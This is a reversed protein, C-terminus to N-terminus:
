GIMLVEGKKLADIHEKSLPDKNDFSKEKRKASTWTTIDLNDGGIPTRNNSTQAMWATIGGYEVKYKKLAKDFGFPDPKKASLDPIPLDVKEDADAIIEDLKSPGVLKIDYKRAYALIHNDFAHPSWKKKDKAPGLAVKRSEELLGYDRSARAFDMYLAMILGLNRIETFLSERELQALMSLFLRGILQFVADVTAGDGIRTVSFAVDTKLFFALAECVAWQEKYNRAAEAFDLVLNQLMELVGYGEYKNFVYMHFYDQCRLQFHIQQAFFKKKGAFTLQWVHEPHDAAPKNCLCTEGGDCKVRKSSKRPEGDEETEENEKDADDEDEDEEEEDNNDFPPSCMCVYNYATVPNQTALKYDAEVNASGSIPAWRESRFIARQTADTTDTGDTSPRSKKAATSATVAARKQPM